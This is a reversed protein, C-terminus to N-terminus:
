KQDHSKFYDDIGRQVDPDHTPNMRSNDVGHNTEQPAPVDIKEPSYRDSVEKQYEQEQKNGTDIRSQTDTDTKATDTSSSVTDTSSSAQQARALPLALFAALLVVCVALKSM